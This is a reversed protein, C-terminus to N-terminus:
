RGGARLVVELPLEPTVVVRENGVGFTCPEYRGVAAGADAARRDVCVLLVEDVIVEDNLVIVRRRGGALTCGIRRHLGGRWDVAERRLETVGVHADGAERGLPGRFSHSEFGRHGSSWLPKRPRGM